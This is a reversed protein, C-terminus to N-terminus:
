TMNYMRGVLTSNRKRRPGNTEPAASAARLLGKLNSPRQPDRLAMLNTGARLESNIYEAPQQPGAERYARWVEGRSSRGTSWM